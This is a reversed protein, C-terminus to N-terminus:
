FMGSSNSDQPPPLCILGHIIIIIIIIIKERHHHPFPPYTCIICHELFHHFKPLNRSRCLQSAYPIWPVFLKGDMLKKPVCVEHSGEILIDHCSGKVKKKRSSMICHRFSVASSCRGDVEIKPEFINMNLIGPHVIPDMQKNLSKLSWFYWDKGGTSGMGRKVALSAGHGLLWCIKSTSIEQLLAVFMWM